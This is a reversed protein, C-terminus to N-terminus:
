QASKVWDGELEHPLRLYRPVLGVSLCSLSVVREVAIRATGFDPYALFTLKWRPQNTPTPVTLTGSAKGGVILHWHTDGAPPYYALGTPSATAPIEVLPRYAYVASNDLNTIAIRALRAGTPDNTYGLFTISVNPRGPPPQIAVWAIFTFGAGIVVVASALIFPMTNGHRAAVALPGTGPLAGRSGLFGAVLPSLILIFRCAWLFHELLGDSQIRSGVLAGLTLPGFAFTVGAFVVM